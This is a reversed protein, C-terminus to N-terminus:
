NKNEGIELYGQRIAEITASTRNTVNLREAARRIHSKVTNLKIGLALSVRKNTYGKEVLSLIGVQKQTLRLNMSIGYRHHGEKEPM